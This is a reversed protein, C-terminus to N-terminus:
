CDFHKKLISSICNNVEESKNLIMLHGGDKITFDPKINKIPFIRDKTGHIHYLNEPIKKNKWNVLANIGWNSYQIDLNDRYFNVLEKEQKTTIGLKYDAIPRITRYSYMPFLKNLKLKGSLRLSLPIEFFSKISSIIIILETKIQHSIEICMIGGFSVGILIPKDHHIQMILKTAYFEISDDKEPTIWKVFHIEYGPCKFNSFLKEDAAFGPICYIHKMLWELDGGVPCVQWCM